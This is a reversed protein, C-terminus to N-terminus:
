MWRWDGRCVLICFILYLLKVESKHGGNM